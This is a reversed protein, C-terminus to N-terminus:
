CRWGMLYQWWTQIRLFRWPEVSPLTLRSTSRDMLKLHVLLTFMTIMCLINCWCALLTMLMSLASRHELLSRANSYVGEDKEWTLNWFTSRQQTWLTWPLMTKGRCNSLLLSAKEGTRSWNQVSGLFATVTMLPRAPERRRLLNICWYEDCSM